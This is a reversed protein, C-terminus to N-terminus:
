LAESRAAEAQDLEPEVAVAALGGEVDCVLDGLEEASRLRAELEREVVDPEVVVCRLDDGAGQKARLLAADGHPEDVVDVM